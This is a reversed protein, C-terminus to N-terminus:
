SSSFQRKVRQSINTLIEYPITNIDTALQAITPSEGFVIVEDGVKANVGTIDLMTMDMCVDGVVSVMKNGVKMKGVGNGFSRLYGDAYGINVIAIIMDREAKGKRNYGITHGSSVHKIQAVVTRLTSVPKLAEQYRGTGEFGHLGIGLRVMDYEYEPYMVVGSSNLLHKIPTFGLKTAIKEYAYDLKGAQRHTFERHEPNDSGSLHSFISNVVMTPSLLSLFSDVEEILIGLRNMGTDIEIHCPLSKGGGVFLAYAKMVELSYVNPELHFDMMIQFDDPDPNMVMIPLHIGVKRLEIGEDVYAVGLYDVKHFQLQHAIEQVGGGYAFAKVMVMIKTKAGCRSRFFNLNHTLNELNIELTTDHTKEELVTVIREFSFDRAGKILIQETDFQAQSKLFSDTDDYFEKEMQFMHRSAGMEQGIGVIRGVGKKMLLTNVEQYLDEPLQGSQRIDSLIVTKAMTLPQQDMYDLSAALGSIDNNYTDDVLYCGQKGKKIVLRHDIKSIQLCARQISSENFDLLLLITICHFLNEISVADVMPVIIEIEDNESLVKWRNEDQMQFYVDADEDLLSWTFTNGAIASNSVQEHILEHDQCYVLKKADEFLMLKEKLKHHRDNFGEDHASGINTLVGITPRIIKELFAMESPKSVGAEFVAINSSSSMQWVSLPVGLQSNFSGPSKTVFYKESLMSALWEKVVTKGNSGTVGIVPYSFMSRRSQGLSQLLSICDDVKIVNVHPPFADVEKEVVVSTIGASIVDNLYSHADHREGKIAFFVAGEHVLIKRSDTILHQIEQDKHLQLIEASEHIEPIQSFRM